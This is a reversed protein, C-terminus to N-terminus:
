VEAVRVDAMLVFLKLAGLRHLSTKKQGGHLALLPLVSLTFHNFLPNSLSQPHSRELGNSLQPLIKERDVTLIISSRNHSTVQDAQAVIVLRIFNFQGIRDVTNSVIIAPADSLGVAVHNTRKKFGSVVCHEKNILQSQPSVHESALSGISVFAPKIVPNTPIHLHHNSGGPISQQAIVDLVSLEFKFIKPAEQTVTNFFHIILLCFKSVISLGTLANQHRIHIRDMEVM